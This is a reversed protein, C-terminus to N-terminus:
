VDSSYTHEVRGFWWLISMDSLNVLELPLLEMVELIKICFLLTMSNIVDSTVLMLMFVYDHFKWTVAIRECECLLFPTNIFFSEGTLYAYRAIVPVSNVSYL